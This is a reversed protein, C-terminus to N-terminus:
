KGAEIGFVSGNLNAVEDKIAQRIKSRLRQSIDLRVEVGPAATFAEDDLFGLLDVPEIYATEPNTRRQQAQYRISDVALKITELRGQANGLAHCYPETADKKKKAKELDESYDTTDAIFDLQTEIYGPLDGPTSM